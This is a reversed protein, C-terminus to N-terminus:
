RANHAPRGTEQLAKVLVQNPEKGLQGESGQDLAVCEDHVAAQEPRWWLADLAPCLVFVQTGQRVVVLQACACQLVQPGGALPARIWVWITLLWMCLCAHHQLVCAHLVHLLQM